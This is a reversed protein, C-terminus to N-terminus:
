VQLKSNSSANSSLAPDLQQDTVSLSLVTDRNTHLYYLIRVESSCSNASLFQAAYLGYRSLLKFGTGGVTHREAM